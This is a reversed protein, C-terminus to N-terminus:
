VWFGLGWVGLGWVGSGLVRFGLGRFIGFCELGLLGSFAVVRQHSGCGLGLLLSYCLWFSSSDLSRTDGKTLGIINRYLGM